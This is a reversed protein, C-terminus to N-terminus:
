AWSAIPDTRSTLITHGHGSPLRARLERGRGKAILVSVRVCCCSTFREFPRALLQLRLMRGRLERNPDVGTIATKTPM